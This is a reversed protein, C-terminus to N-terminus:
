ESYWGFGFGVVDVPASCDTLKNRTNHEPLSCRCYKLQGVTNLANLKSISYELSSYTTELDRPHGCADQPRAHRAAGATHRHVAAGNGM